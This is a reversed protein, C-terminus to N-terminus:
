REDVVSCAHTGLWGWTIRDGKNLKIVPTGTVSSCDSQVCNPGSSLLHVTPNSELLTVVARSLAPPRRRTMAAQDRHALLQRAKLTTFSKRWAKELRAAVLNWKKKCPPPLAKADENSASM